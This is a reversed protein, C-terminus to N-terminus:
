PVQVGTNELLVQITNAAVGYGILSVWNTSVLDAVPIILGTSGLAYFTGVVVDASIVLRVNSSCMLVYDNASGPTLAIGTTLADSEVARDAKYYKGTSEGADWGKRLVQGQTIAEGALVSSVQSRATSLAVNAAVITLAAM